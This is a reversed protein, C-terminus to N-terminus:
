IRAAFPIRRHSLNGAAELLQVARAKGHSRRRETLDLIRLEQDLISSSFIRRIIGFQFSVDYCKQEFQNRIRYSLFIVASLAKDATHKFALPCVAIMLNTRQDVVLM